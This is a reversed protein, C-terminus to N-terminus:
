MKRNYLDTDFIVYFSLIMDIKIEFNVRFTNQLPLVIVTM